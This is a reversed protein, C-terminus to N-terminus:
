LATLLEIDALEIDTALERLQRSKADIIPAIDDSM